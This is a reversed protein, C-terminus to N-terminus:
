VNFAFNTLQRDMTTAISATAATDAERYRENASWLSYLAHTSAAQEVSDPALKVTNRTGGPAVKRRNGCTHSRTRQITYAIRQYNVVANVLQNSDSKSRKDPTPNSGLDEAHYDHAKVM